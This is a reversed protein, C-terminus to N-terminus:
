RNAECAVGDNDADLRFPDSPDQALLWQAYGYSIDPCDVDYSPWSYGTAGSESGASGGSGAAPVGPGGCTGWLGLGEAMAAGQAVALREAYPGNAADDTVTAYGERVLLENALYPGKDKKGKFWAYAPLDDVKLVKSFDAELWLVAGHGSLLTWSRRFAEQGYCEVPNGRGETAPLAIGALKITITRGDDPSDPENITVKVVGGDFGEEIDARVAGKPIKDGKHTRSARSTLWDCAVGNRDEDLEPAIDGLVDFSEQAEEQYTYRSCDDVGAARGLQAVSFGLGAVLFGVLV